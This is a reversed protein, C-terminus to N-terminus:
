LPLRRDMLARVAEDGDRQRIDCPDLGEPDVAVFTQALFQQDLGFSKLAANQGAEDGDFTFIVKAGSSGVKLQAQGTDGMLRRVVKVHDEGFATGCTAVANTVGALHCAMVDTYGEVVVVTREQRIAGKALDIGYLVHAKKYLQTEPTNLYKPGQDDEHLRRAGFGIVDGTVERIPWVLRGRFRDYVGRQGESVLGSAKLEPETFGSRRLHETLSSWGQPAYGCGFTEAAVRDFGRERLFDRAIRADPGDLQGVYFEAAVRHAELLRRRMGAGSESTRPGGSEYRLTVGARDALYEVAESFPLGDMRMVFEIVDGGEGCGFCHWRGAAPRVHFSPSREDHFPCLGKLSGVGAPKLSVHQGVIEELPARERVAAIDDRNITGAM